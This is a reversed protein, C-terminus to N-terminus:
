SAFVTVSADVNSQITADASAQITALDNGALAAIVYRVVENATGTPNALAGKAWALRNAHNATGPDEFAISVATKICAAAVKQNLIPDNLLTFLDTLAAAAM